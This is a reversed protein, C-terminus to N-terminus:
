WSLRFVAVSMACRCRVRVSIKVCCTPVRPANPAPRTSKWKPAVPGTSACRGADSGTEIIRGVLEHGLYKRSIGPVAANFSRPDMDMFIFHIDTGCLGSAINKVKVWRDGPLRPEPVEAYRVPSIPGLAAYKDILSAARMALVKPLSNDFYLAKLEAESSTPPPAPSQGSL